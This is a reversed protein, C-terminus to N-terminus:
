NFPTHDVRCRLVISAKKLWSDQVNIVMLFSKHFNFKLTYTLEFLLLMSKLARVNAWSKESKIVNDDAFQLHSVRCEGKHDLRIGWSFVM